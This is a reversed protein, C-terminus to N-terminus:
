TFKDKLSEYKSKFDKTVKIFDILTIEWHDLSVIACMSLAWEAEIFNVGWWFIQFPYVIAIFWDPSHSAWSPWKAKGPGRVFRVKIQYSLAKGPQLTLIECHFFFHNFYLKKFKWHDPGGSQQVPRVSVPLFKMLKKSVIVNVSTRQRWALVVFCFSQNCSISCSFIVIIKM